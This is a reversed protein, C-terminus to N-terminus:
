TQRKHCLCFPFVEVTATAKPNELNDKEQFCVLTNASETKSYATWVTFLLKESHINVTAICEPVISELLKRIGFQKPEGANCHHAYHFHKEKPM